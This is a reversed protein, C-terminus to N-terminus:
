QVCDIMKKINEKNTGSITMQPIYKIDDDLYKYKNKEYLMLSPVGNLRKNKKMFSYLDFCEDIDIEIYIFVDNKKKNNLDNM